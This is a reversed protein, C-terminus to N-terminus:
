AGAAAQVGSGAEVVRSTAQEQPPALVKEIEDSLNGLISKADNVRTLTETLKAVEKKKLKERCTILSPLAQAEWNRAEKEFADLAQDLHRIAGSPSIETAEGTAARKAKPEGSGMLARLAHVSLNEKLARTILGNRNRGDKVTALLEFHSWTLPLGKTNTRKVEAKFEPEEWTEAVTAHRYLTKQDLGLEAEMREVGSEGYKAENMVARVIVGAKYRALVDSRDAAVLLERAEKCAAKFNKQQNKSHDNSSNM